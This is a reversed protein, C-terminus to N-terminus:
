SEAASEATVALKTAAHAFDDEIGLGGAEVRAGAM